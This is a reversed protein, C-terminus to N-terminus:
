KQNLLQKYQIYDEKYFENIFEIHTENLNTKDYLRKKEGTSNLHINKIEIGYKKFQDNISIFDNFLFNISNIKIGNWQLIDTTTMYWSKRGLITKCEPDKEHCKLRDILVDPNIKLHNCISIFRDMPNRWLVIFDKNKIDTDNLLGINYAEQITLHDLSIRTIRPYKKFNLKQISHINDNISYTGYYLFNYTSPLQHYITTGACKAIHVFYFKIYEKQILHQLLYNNLFM